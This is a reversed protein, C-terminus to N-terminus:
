GYTDFSVDCDFSCDGTVSARRSVGSVDGPSNGAFQLAGRLASSRGLQQWVASFEGFGRQISNECPCLSFRGSFFQSRVPFHNAFRHLLLFIAFFGLKKSRHM